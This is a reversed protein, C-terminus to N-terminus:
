TRPKPMVHLLETTHERVVPHKVIPKKAPVSRDVSMTFQYSGEEEPNSYEIVFVGDEEEDDEAPLTCEMEYCVTAGPNVQEGAIHTDDIRVVTIQDMGSTVDWNGNGAGAGGRVLLQELAKQRRTRMAAANQALRQARETSSENQRRARMSAANRARRRERESSSEAARRFRRKMANAKLHRDSLRSKRRRMM